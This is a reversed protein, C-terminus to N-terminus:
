KFPLSEDESGDPINMFGAPEKKVCQRRARVVQMPMIIVSYLFEEYHDYKKEKIMRLFYDILFKDEGSGTETLDIGLRLLNSRYVRAANEGLYKGTNELYYRFFPVVGMYMYEDLIPPRGSTELERVLEDISLKSAAQKEEPAATKLTKAKNEKQM